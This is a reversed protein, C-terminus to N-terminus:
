STKNGATKELKFEWNEDKEMSIRFTLKLSFVEEYFKEVAKEIDSYNESDFKHCKIAVHGEKNRFVKAIRFGKEIEKLYKKPNLAEKVNDLLQNFSFTDDNKFDNKNIDSLKYNVKNLKKRDNPKNITYGNKLYGSKLLLECAIGIFLRKLVNRVWLKSPEKIEVNEKKMKAAQKLYYEALTKFVIWDNQEFFKTFQLKINEEPRMNYNSAVNLIKDKISLLFDEGLPISPM